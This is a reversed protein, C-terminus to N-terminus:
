KRVPKERIVVKDFVIKKELYGKKVRYYIAQATDPGKDKVVKVDKEIPKADLRPRGMTPTDGDKRVLVERKAIKESIRDRYERVSMWETGSGDDSLFVMNQRKQKEDKSM